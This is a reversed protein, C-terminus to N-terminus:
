FIGLPPSRVGQALILHGLIGLTLTTSFMILSRFTSLHQCIIYRIKDNTSRDNVKRMPEHPLHSLRMLVDSNRM